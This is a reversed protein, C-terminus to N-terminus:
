NYAFWYNGFNASIKKTENIGLTIFFSNLLNKYEYKDVSFGWPVEGWNYKYEVKILSGKAYIWKNEGTFYSYDTILTNNKDYIRLSHDGSTETKIKAFHLGIWDAKKRKKELTWTRSYKKNLKVIHPTEISYNEKRAKWIAVNSELARFGLNKLTATINVKEGNKPKEPDINLSLVAIDKSPFVYITKNLINNESNTEVINSKIEGIITHNGTTANWIASINKTENANISITTNYLQNLLEYKDIDVVVPNAITGGI